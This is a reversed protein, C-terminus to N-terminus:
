SGAARAQLGPRQVNFGAIELSEALASSPEHEDLWASVAAQQEAPPSDLVGLRRLLARATSVPIQERSRVLQGPEVVFRETM